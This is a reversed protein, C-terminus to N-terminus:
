LIVKEIINKLYIKLTSYLILTELTEEPFFNEQKLTELM